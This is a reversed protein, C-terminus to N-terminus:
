GSLPDRQSGAVDLVVIGAKGGTEVYRYADAISNLPYKRDVIARFEGVEIREALFPVFARGSGRPPVPITVRGSRTMLSWLLYLLSQGWPGIDTAAFVGESNLLKRWQFITMKGVADLVFDFTGALQAFEDSPYGIVRDAGLSQAMALHRVEVVATVDFGYYKALQVAASGIAGSAGYILIPSGPKLRLRSLSTNAYFAGECVVAQDFRTAAPLRAIWGNEPMCVFEAQAGNARLQCMGFVRDGPKLSNVRAGVAEVEGAFDMGLITRQRRARTILRNLVPHRLEGLDTRNVTAAKVRVLLEDEGPIPKPVERPAIKWSKGFRSVVAARM